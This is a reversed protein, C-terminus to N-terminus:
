DREESYLYLYRYFIKISMRALVELIIISLVVMFSIEHFQIDSSHVIKKLPTIYELFKDGDLIYLIGSFLVVWQSLILFRIKAGYFGRRITDLRMRMDEDYSNTKDCYAEMGLLLLCIIIGFIFVVSALFLFSAFLLDAISVILNIFDHNVISLITQFKSPFVTKFFIGVIAVISIVEISQLADKVDKYLNKLEDSSSIM